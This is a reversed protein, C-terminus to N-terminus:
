LREIEETLRSIEECVCQNAKLYLNMMMESTLHIYTNTGGASVELKLYLSESALAKGLVELNKKQLSLSTELSQLVSAKHKLQEIEKPTM